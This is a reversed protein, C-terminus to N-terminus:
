LLNVESAGEGTIQGSVPRGGAPVVADTVHEHGALETAVDLRWIIHWGSPVQVPLGV